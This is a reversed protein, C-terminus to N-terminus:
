RRESGTAQAARDGQEKLLRGLNRVAKPAEDAHGSDIAQQYAAKAGEMDDREALLLGLDRAARPAADAHGSSAAKRWAQEAAESQHYIVRANYGVRVLESIDANATIM